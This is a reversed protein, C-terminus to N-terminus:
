MSSNTAFQNQPFVKQHFLRAQRKDILSKLKEKSRPFKSRSKVEYTPIVYACKRCTNTNLFRSLNRALGPSPIIDIDTLFVYNTQSGKRALNRMHNQPFPYKARWKQFSPLNLSFHDFQFNNEHKLMGHEVFFYRNLTGFM